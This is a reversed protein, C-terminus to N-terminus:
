IKKAKTNQIITKIDNVAKNKSKQEKDAETFSKSKRMSSIPTGNVSVKGDTPNIQPTASLPYDRGSALNTQSMTGSALSAIKEGIRKSRETEIPAARSGGTKASVIGKGTQTRSDRKVMRDAVRNAREPNSESIRGIRKYQRPKLDNAGM